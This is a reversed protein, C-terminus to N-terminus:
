KSGEALGEGTLYKCSERVAETMDTACEDLEVVLWQLVSEDAAAVVAPIDMKGAGVATHPEGQVLPGDKIHLLPIRSKFKAVQAPVNVAGFNSAWYVDIECLVDPCMELFIDYALRGDVENFEWWHNHLALRVDSGAIAEVAANTTDATRRIADMDKFDDPGFGSVALDTGLGLTLDIVESANDKNPMPGHNSSVVMGLDEVMKRVERPTYDFLGAGEVGKYGMEAVDKLVSLYDQQARERLSYLQISIPKM